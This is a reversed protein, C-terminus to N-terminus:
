LDEPTAVGISKARGDLRELANLRTPNMNSGYQLLKVYGRPMFGNKAQGEDIGFGV